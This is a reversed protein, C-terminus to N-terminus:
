PLRPLSRGNPHLRCLPLCLLRSSPLSLRKCLHQAAELLLSRPYVSRSSPSLRVWSRPDVPRASPQMQITGQRTLTYRLSPASPASCFSIASIHLRSRPQRRGGSCHHPCSPHDVRHYVYCLGPAAGGRKTLRDQSVAPLDIRGLFSRPPADFQWATLPFRFCASSLRVSLLSSQRFNRWIRQNWINILDKSEFNNSASPPLGIPLFSKGAFGPSSIFTDELAM